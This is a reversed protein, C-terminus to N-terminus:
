SEGVLVPRFEFGRPPPIHYVATVAAIAIDEPYWVEVWPICGFIGGDKTKPYAVSNPMIKPELHGRDLRLLVHTAQTNTLVDWANGWQRIVQEDSPTAFDFLSVCRHVYGFSKRTTHDFRAPFRADINPKIAGAKRIEECGALTTVHWYGHRLM